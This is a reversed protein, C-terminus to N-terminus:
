ILSKESLAKLFPQLSIMMKETNQRITEILETYRELSSVILRGVDIVNFENDNEKDEM